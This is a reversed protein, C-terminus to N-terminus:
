QAKLESKILQRAMWDPLRQAKAWDETLTEWECAQAAELLNAAAEVALQRRFSRRQEIMSSLGVQALLMVIVALVAFAIMCETVTFGRQRQELRWGVCRPRHAHELRILARRLMM